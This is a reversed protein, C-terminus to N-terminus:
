TASSKLPAPSCPCFYAMSAGTVSTARRWGFGVVMTVDSLSSMVLSQPLWTRMM